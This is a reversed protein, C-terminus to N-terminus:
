RHAKRHGAVLQKLRLEDVTLTCDFDALRKRHQLIIKGDLSADVTRCVYLGSKNLYDIVDNANSSRNRDYAKLVSLYGDAVDELIGRVLRQTSTGDYFCANYRSSLNLVVM